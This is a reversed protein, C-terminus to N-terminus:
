GIREAGFEALDYITEEGEAGAAPPLPVADFEALDYIKEDESSVGETLVEGALPSAPVSEPMSVSMPEPATTLSEELGPVAAQQFDGGAASDADFISGGSRAFPDAVLGADTAAESGFPDYQEVALSAGPAATADGTGGTDLGTLDGMVNLLQDIRASQVNFTQALKVLGSASEGAVPAVERLSAALDTSEDDELVTPDLEALRGRVTEIVRERPDGDEGSVSADTSKRLATTLEELDQTLPLLREGKTGLRAVEMAIQFALRSAREVLTVISAGGEGEGEAARTPLNALESQVAVLAQRLRDRQRSRPDDESLQETLKGLHRAVREAAAGQHHLTELTTANWTRADRLGTVLDPGQAELASSQDRAMSRAEEAEKLLRQCQDALSGVPPSEWDAALDALNGESMAKELRHMEGELGVYRTLKAQQLNFHGLLGSTVAALEPDHQLEDRQWTEPKEPDLGRIAGLIAADEEAQVLLHRVRREVALAALFGAFLMVVASLWFANVPYSRFDGITMPDRFGSFDLLAEPTIGAATILGSGLTLGGLLVLLFSLFAGGRVRSGPSRRKRARGKRGKGATKEKADTPTTTGADPQDELDPDDLALDLDDEAAAPDDEPFDSLLDADWEGASADADKAGDDLDLYDRESM